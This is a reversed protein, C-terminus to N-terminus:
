LLYLFLICLYIIINRTLLFLESEIQINFTTFTNRKLLKPFYTFLIYHTLFEM